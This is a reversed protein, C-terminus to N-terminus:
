PMFNKVVTRVFQYCGILGQQKEYYGKNRPIRVSILEWLQELGKQKTPNPVVACYLYLLALFDHISPHQLQKDVSKTKVGDIQRIYSKLESVPAVKRSYPARLQNILCNNHASANRLMKVPYLLGCYSSGFSDNREYFLSYLNVFQGFSMVEIINWIAWDGKHKEIIGGCTSTNSKADIQDVRSPDRHFYEQIIEYGDEETKNFDSLLKVKLFHELDIAMCLIIKRLEADITSLDVLHAFDLNIYQGRKEEDRYVDFNHAYAKLKFYYNNNELFRKAAAESTIEFGIGKAKMHEIQKPISLKPSGM